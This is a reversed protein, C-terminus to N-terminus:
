KVDPLDAVHQDEDPVPETTKRGLFTDPVPQKLVERAERVLARLQELYRADGITPRCIRRNPM